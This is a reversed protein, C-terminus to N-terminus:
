RDRQASPPLTEAAAGNALTSGAWQLVAARRNDELLTTGPCRALGRDLLVVAAEARGSALLELGFSSIEAIEADLVEPRRGCRQRAQDLVTFAQEQENRELLSRAWRRYVVLLAQAFYPRDPQAAAGDSLVKLATEFQEAQCLSQVWQHHVHVFNTGFTEYLPDLALGQLLLDRAEACRGSNGLDIAWNNITALLNGRATTSDPDLWLAKANAAAATAFRKEALLDVGRNYYIMAAIQVPSVERIPGRPHSPPTGAAKAAMEAQKGPNGMWRFWEACTTEIDLPEEPLSVRSMAHGPIELGCVPLGLPGALCNFLVSASVCNFRGEDLALRLDTCDIHYGGQLVRRHMFEFVVEAQRRPTQTPSILPRLEEVLADRQRAYRQLAEARDVGSAVLAADLLSHEDLRGDAADAFLRQELGTLAEGFFVNPVRPLTELGPAVGDM